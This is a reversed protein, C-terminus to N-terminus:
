VSGHGVGLQTVGVHRGMLRVDEWVEHKTMSEMTHVSALRRGLVGGEVTRGSGVHWSGARESGGHGSETGGGTTQLLRTTPDGVVLVVSATVVLVVCLVGWVSFVALERFSKPLQLAAAIGTCGVVAWGFGPVGGWGAWEGMLSHIQAWAIVLATCAAGFLDLQCVVQSLVAGWSGLVHASLSPLTPVVHSPLAALCKDMMLATSGFLAIALPFIVLASWGGLRLAFPLSLM